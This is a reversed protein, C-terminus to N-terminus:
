VLNGTTVIEHPVFPSDGANVSINNRAILLRMSFPVTRIIREPFSATLNGGWRRSHSSINQGLRGNLTSVVIDISPWRQGSFVEIVNNHYASYVIIPFFRGEGLSAMEYINPCRADINRYTRGDLVVFLGHRKERNCDGSYSNRCSYRM